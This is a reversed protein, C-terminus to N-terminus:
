KRKRGILFEEWEQHEKTVRLALVETRHKKRLTKVEFVGLRRGLDGEVGAEQLVQRVAAVTATEGPDVGGGSVVWQNENSSSLVLLVQQIILRKDSLKPTPDSASALLAYRLDGAEQLVERVAAVAATEGPDVGGGSVVWQNENSLKPILDYASALLAYRLNKNMM